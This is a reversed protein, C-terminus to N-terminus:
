IFIKLASLLISAKGKRENISIEEMDCKTEEFFEKSKGM